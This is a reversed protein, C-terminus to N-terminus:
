SSPWRLEFQVHETDIHDRHHASLQSVQPTEIKYFMTVSCKNYPHINATKNTNSCEYKATKRQYQLIPLPIWYQISSYHLTTCSRRMYSTILEHLSTVLQSGRRGIYSYTAPFQEHFYLAINCIRNLLIIIKKKLQQKPM